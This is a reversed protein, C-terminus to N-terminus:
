TGDPPPTDAFWDAGGVGGRGNTATPPRAPAGKPVTCVLPPLCSKCSGAKCTTTCYQKIRKHVPVHRATSHQKCNDNLGLVDCGGSHWVGCAVMSDLVVVVVVLLLLLVVVVM